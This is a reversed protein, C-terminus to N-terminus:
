FDIFMHDKIIGHQNFFCISHIAKNVCNNPSSSYYTAVCKLVIKLFKKLSVNDFIHKSLLTTLTWLFANRKKKKLHANEFFYFLKKKQSFRKKM